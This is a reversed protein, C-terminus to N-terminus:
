KIVFFRMFILISCIISTGGAITLIAGTLPMSYTHHLYIPVSFGAIMFAGALFYGFDRWNKFVGHQVGGYLHSASALNLAVLLLTNFFAPLTYYWYFHPQALNPPVLQEPAGDRLIKSISIADFLMVWALSYFVGCLASVLFGRLTSNM